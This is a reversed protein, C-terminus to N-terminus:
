ERGMLGQIPPGVNGSNKSCNGDADHPVFRNQEVSNEPRISRYPVASLLLFIARNAQYTAASRSGESGRMFIKGESTSVFWM